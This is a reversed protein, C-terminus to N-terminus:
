IVDVEKQVQGLIENPDNAPIYISNATEIRGTEHNWDKVFSTVAETDNLVNPGDHDMPIVLARVGVLKEGEYVPIPFAKGVYQVTRKSSM